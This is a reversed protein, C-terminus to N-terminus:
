EKEKLTELLSEIKQQKEFQEDFTFILEPVYRSDLANALAKRMSPKYLKLVDLMEAFYEKGRANYFYIYCTGRDSSLKVRNIFFGQLRPDDLSAQMFLQSIYRLILSERQARKIDQTPSEKRAVM